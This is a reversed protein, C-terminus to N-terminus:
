SIIKIMNNDLLVEWTKSSKKGNKDVVKIITKEVRMEVEVVVLEGYQKHELKMGVTVAPYNRVSRMLRNTVELKPQTVGIHNPSVQKENEEKQRRTKEEPFLEDIFSSPKNRIGFLHLYNKARTIGVYFLRREEMAGDANDKSRSFINPRSSPFRGDYVDVMYVSDYELGKSSHITSLVVKYENPSSGSLMYRELEKLRTLFGKIDTEQEALICLIELKGLVSPNEMLHKEYDTGMMISIAQTPTATAARKIGECFRQNKSKQSPNQDDGQRMIADLVSIGESKCLQDISDKQQKTLDLLDKSWIQMFAAVDNVNIALTLYAVVERVTRTQFFNMESKRHKYPIQNRRLLDVLVVASENDRYLFATDTQTNKAVDLLRLYQAKKSPVQELRVAQGDGREATMHKEYRGKNQAIFAQAKEVIQNTSRYNREMRLIYPNLYRYRFNLLAKPYAARYGYISQDEDGVMFLSNGQALIRIIEHQIKSTDQAEDVCIYRYKARLENTIRESKQLIALAFVLQDDFDMCGTDALARQYDQYIESLHPYEREIEMIQEDTLMMNKIYTIAASLELYDNESANKGNHKKFSECLLKRRDEEKLHKREKRGFKSCNDTYIKYSLSNITRFDIRDGIGKGFKESFRARMEADANKGYTIALINEPAIHKNIVMHGLRAVLVTTKGSGPVALLLNSGEVALLAREQQKNLSIHYKDKFECFHQNEEMDERCPPLCGGNKLGVYALFDNRSMLETTYFCEFGYESVEMVRVICRDPASSLQFFLDICGSQVDYNNFAKKPNKWDFMLGDNCKRYSLHGKQWLDSVDFLWIVKHGLNFYFNNRNDFAAVPMISHQFEIVTRDIMVDARHKTEGLALKVEQNEKPFLSQWENHWPSIDYTRDSVWSDSCPSSPKHAFHHQRVDGKRTILPEGCYPCYYEQNSHTEDIHVRNDNYDHAFLM